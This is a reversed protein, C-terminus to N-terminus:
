FVVHFEFRENCPGQPFMAMNPEPRGVHDFAVQSCFFICGVLDNGQVLHCDFRASLGVLKAKYKWRAPALWVTRSITVTHHGPRAQSVSVVEQVTCAVPTKSHPTAHLVIPKLTPHM